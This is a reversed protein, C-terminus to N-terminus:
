WSGENKDTGIAAELDGRAAFEVADLHHRVGALVDTLGVAEVEEDLAM